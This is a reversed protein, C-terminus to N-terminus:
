LWTNCYAKAESIWYCWHRVESRTFRSNFTFKIFKHEKSFLKM